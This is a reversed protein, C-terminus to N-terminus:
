NIHYNVINLGPTTVNGQFTEAKVEGIDRSYYDIWGYLASWNGNLLMEAKQEVSITNPYSIQGSSNTVTITADKQLITFTFRVSYHNSGINGGYTATTWSYGAPKDDKLFVFEAWYTTSFGYYDSINQYRYYDHGSRGYFGLTDLPAAPNMRFLFTNYSNQGVSITPHIVSDKWSPLGGGDEYYWWSGPSRPFYDNGSNTVDYTTVAFHCTSSDFSLTFTYVGPAIPKGSAYLRVQNLGTSSFKGSASFYFGNITDSSITYSGKSFINVSVDAYNVASLPADKQYIGGIMIGLCSDPSGHLSGHAITNREYSYEKGCALFIILSIFLLFRASM